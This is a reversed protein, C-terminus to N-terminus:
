EDDPEARPRPLAGSAWALEIMSELWALRQAPTADLALTLKRIRAAEWSGGWDDRTEADDAVV